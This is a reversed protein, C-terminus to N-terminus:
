KIVRVVISGSELDACGSRGEMAPGMATSVVSKKMQPKMVIFRFCVRCGCPRFPVLRDVFLM